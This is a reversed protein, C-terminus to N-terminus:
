EAGGQKAPGATGFFKLISSTSLDTFRHALPSSVGYQRLKVWSNCDSDTSDTFKMSFISKQCFFSSSSLSFFGGLVKRTLCKIFSITWLPWICWRHQMKLVRHDIARNNVDSGYIGLSFGFFNIYCRIYESSVQTGPVRSWDDTSSSVWGALFRLCLFGLTLCREWSSHAPWRFHKFLQFRM